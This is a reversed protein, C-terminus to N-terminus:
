NLGLFSKTEFISTSTARKLDVEVIEFQKSSLLKADDPTKDLRMPIYTAVVQRYLWVTYLKDGSAWMGIQSTDTCYRHLIGASCKAESTKNLVKGTVQLYAFRARDINWVFGLTAWRAPGIDGSHRPKWKPQTQHGLEIYGAVLKQKEPGYFIGRPYASIEIRPQDANSPFMSKYTSQIQRTIPSIDVNLVGPDSSSGTLKQYASKPAIISVGCGRSNADDRCSDRPLSKPVKYVPKCRWVSAGGADCQDTTISPALANVQAKIGNKIQGNALLLQPSKAFLTMDEVTNLWTHVNFSEFKQGQVYQRNLEDLSNREVWEYPDIWKGKEVLLFPLMNILNGTYLGDPMAPRVEAKSEAMSTAAKVPTEAHATAALLLSLFIFKFKM